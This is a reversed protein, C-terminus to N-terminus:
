SDCPWPWTRAACRAPAHSMLRWRSCSSIRRRASCATASVISGAASPSSRIRSRSDFGWGSITAQSIAPQVLRVCGASSRISGARAPAAPRSPEHSRSMTRNRLATASRSPGAASRRSPAILSSRGPDPIDRWSFSRDAIAKPAAATIPAAPPKAREAPSGCCIIEAALENMEGFWVCWVGPPPWFGPGLPEACGKGDVDPTVGCPLRLADGDGAGEHEELGLALALGLGLGLGVVGVGVPGVVGVGVPGVVGVGVPGVVGVGVCLAPPMVEAGDVLPAASEEMTAPAALGVGVAM